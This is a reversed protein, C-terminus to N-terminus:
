LAYFRLLQALYTSLYTSVKSTECPVDHQSSYSAYQAGSNINHNNYKLSNVAPSSNAQTGM